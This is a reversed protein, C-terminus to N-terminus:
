FFLKKYNIIERPIAVQMINTDTISGLNHGFFMKPHVEHCGDQFGIHHGHSTMASPVMQNALGLFRPIAVQIIKTDTTSGFNHYFVDNQSRNTITAMNFDLIAAVTPIATM